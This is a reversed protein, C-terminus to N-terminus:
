KACIYLFSGCMGGTVDILIRASALPTYGSRCTCDGTWANTVACQGACVGQGLDVRQYAGGYFLFSRNVTPAVSQYPLETSSVDEAAGSGQNFLLMLGSIALMSVWRRMWSRRTM